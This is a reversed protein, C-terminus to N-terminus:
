ILNFISFIFCLVFHFYSFICFLCFSLYLFFLSSFFSLFCFIVFCPFFLFLYFLLYLLVLGGCLFSLPFCISFSFSFFSFSLTRGPFQARSPRVYRCCEERAGPGDRGRRPGREQSSGSLWRMRARQHDIALERGGVSHEVASQVWM